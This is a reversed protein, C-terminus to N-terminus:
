TQGGEQPAYRHFRERAARFNALVKVRDAATSAGELPLGVFMLRANEPDGGTRHLLSAIFRCGLDANREPDLLSSPHDTDGTHFCALLQFLGYSHWCDPNDRGPNFKLRPSNLVSRQYRRGGDRAAWGLDGEATPVFKSECWAFALAVDLPVNHRDAARIILAIIEGQNMRDSDLYSLRRM